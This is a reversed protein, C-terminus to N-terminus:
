QVVTLMKDCIHKRKIETPKEARKRLFCKFIVHKTQYVRPIM